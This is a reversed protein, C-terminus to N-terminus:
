MYVVYLGYEPVSQTRMVICVFEAQNLVVNGIGIYLVQPSLTADPSPRQM